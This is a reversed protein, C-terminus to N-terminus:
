QDISIQSNEMGGTVVAGNTVTTSSGGFLAAATLGAIGLALVIWAAKPINSVTMNGRVVVNGGAAVGQHASVAPDAKAPATTKGPATNKDSFYKYAVWLAGIVTALGSGYFALAQMVNPDMWWGAM